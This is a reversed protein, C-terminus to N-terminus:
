KHGGCSHACSKKQSGSCGSQKSKCDSSKAKCNAENCNEKKNGCHDCLGDKNTDVYNQAQVQKAQTATSVGTSTSANNKDAKVTSTTQTSENQTKTTKATQSFVLTSTVMLMVFIGTALKNKKMFPINKNTKSILHNYSLIQEL